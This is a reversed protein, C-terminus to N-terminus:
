GMKEALEKAQEVMERVMNVGGQWFARDSIDVNMEKLLEPPSASGGASLLNVYKDIFPEGEQKYRAYLALVLLEGFAYAYVYFPSQFVHPIYLWWWSHDEGLKLADQFMEQMTTQWLNNFTEM